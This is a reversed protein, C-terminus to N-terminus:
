QILKVRACINTDDLLSHVPLLRSTLKQVVISSVETVHSHISAIELSVYKVASSAFLKPTISSTIAVLSPDVFFVASKLDIEFVNPSCKAFFHDDCM